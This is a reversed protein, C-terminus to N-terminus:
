QRDACACAMRRAAIVPKKRTCKPELNGVDGAFGTDGIAGDIKVKLALSSVKMRDEDFRRSANPAARFRPSGSHGIGTFVM